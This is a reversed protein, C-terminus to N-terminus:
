DRKFAARARKRMRWRVFGFVGFLLPVGIVNAVSVARQTSEEVPKLPAAADGRSRISILDEDQALWDIMNLFVDASNRIFEAGGVILLRTKPSEKVVQRGDLTGDENPLPKDAWSSKFAGELTYALPFPGPQEDKAQEPDMLQQPDLSPQVGDKKTSSYESSSILARATLAKDNRATETLALAQTFPMIMKDVDKVMISEKDFDTAVPQLPYNVVALRIMRGERVPVQAVVNQKRDLVLNKTLKVGYNELLPELGHPLPNLRNQRMDAVASPVFFGVPKGAMIFQDIEFQHRAPIEALPAFVMLADVNDPIDAKQSMDVSTVNYNEDLAQRLPNVGGQPPPRLLDPEQHGQLFAVTKKKSSATLSKIMRTIDYELGGLNQIIPLKEQKDGYIFAVGMFAKKIERQDRSRYDIQAPTIGFRRAEEELEPKGTPDVFEYRIRGGSWAVYEDLKDKVTQEFANYPAQLNRTFYGKVQLPKELRAVIAKSAPSLSYVKGKTLDARAVLGSILFNALVLIGAFALLRIRFDRRLFERTTTM